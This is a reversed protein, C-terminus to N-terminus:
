HSLEATANVRSTDQAEQELEARQRLLIDLLGIRWSEKEPVHEVPLARKVILSSEEACDLKTLESLFRLNGATVSRADKAAMNALVAAETSPSRLLKQYFAPYRGFVMNRLPPIGATLHGEVLYKHTSIPLRYIRKICSTYASFFSSSAPSDLRWLVSGYADCALIRVAKLIQPPAAFGFQARVGVSRSIFRARKEKADAAMSLDQHLKHGLHVASDRWPLAVGNLELPAPYIIKRAPQHGAFFICFSKCKKPDQSSSFRLNLGAGHKVAIALMESLMARNTAMLALDDAYMVAGCWMGAVHCGLGSRRLAKLIGDAYVAWLAPSAAAGERMGNSIPFSSSRRGQLKIHGEQEQYMFMMVRVVIPPLGKEDLCIKFLDAFKVSPFGKKVDLLCCLTSSGRLYHHEAM